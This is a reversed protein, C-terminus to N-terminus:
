LDARRALHGATRIHHRRQRRHGSGAPDGAIATDVIYVQDPISEGNAFAPATDPVPGVFINHTDTTDLTGDSVTVTLTVTVTGTVDPPTWTVGTAGTAPSFTGSPGGGNAAASWTYTLTDGTDPDSATATLALTDPNSIVEETNTIM